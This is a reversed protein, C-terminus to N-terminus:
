ERADVRGGRVPECAAQRAVLPRAACDLSALATKVAASCSRSCAEPERTLTRQAARPTATVFRLTHARGQLLGKAGLGASRPPGREVSNCEMGNISRGKSSAGTGRRDCDDVRRRPRLGCCLVVAPPGRDDVEQHALALGPPPGGVV